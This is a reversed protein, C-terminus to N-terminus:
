WKKQEVSQNTNTQDKPIHLVGIPKWSLLVRWSQDMLFLYGAMLAVTALVVITDQVLRKQTTWSVKNLEAETAILFDAFAPMNVVRWALWLSALLLILPVTFQVSPLLTLTAFLTPGTAPRLSKTEPKTRLAKLAHDCEDRLGPEGRRRELLSELEDREAPGKGQAVIKEAEQRLRRTHLLPLALDIEAKAVEENFKETPVVDGEKFTYNGEEILGVRVYRSPDTNDNADRLAYRDVLLVALPLEFVPGLEAEQHLVKAERVVEDVLPTLDTMNTRADVERLRRAAEGKFVNLSLLHEFEAYIQQNITLLLEVVGKEEAAKIAEKAPSPFQPRDLIANVKQEFAGVPVVQRPLLDTDGPRRVEVRGKDRPPLIADDELWQRTDGISEIAVAGTFPTNLEWNPSGRKLTGHSMLTYIGAGVLLLIGFITGRRVRQGQSAKYPTAQFWGGQEFRVLYRQTKERVFLPIGGLLLLVGAVGTIIAGALRGQAGFWRYDYVWHEVWLSVWRTLLLVVLFGVFGVFIGAKVGPAPQGLVRAGLVALAVAVVLMVIGLLAGGVFPYGGLGLGEWGPWWLTPLLKFVIVLSCLLYLVGLLGVVAPHALLGSSGTGPTNKVAVAM